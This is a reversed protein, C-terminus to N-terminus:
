GWIQRLFHGMDLQCMLPFRQVLVTIIGRAGNAGLMLAVATTLSESRRSYEWGSGPRDMSSEYDVSCTESSQERRSWTRSANSIVLTDRREGGLHPIACWDGRM